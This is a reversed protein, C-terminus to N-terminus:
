NTQIILYNSVSWFSTPDIIRLITRDKGEKVLRYSSEPMPSLIKPKSSSIPLETLLRIDVQMFKDKPLNEYNVRKKKMFGGTLLGADKLEKKTGMKLFALNIADNQANMAEKRMEIEQTLKTNDETLNNVMDNLQGISVNKKELDARLTQILKDKSDLQQNLYDILRNLKSVDTGKQRLSDTLQAIRLRQNSLTQQFMELNKRLQKRDVITREKGKNTYFLSNEQIAISDLGDSLTEIFSSLDMFEKQHNSDVSELSDIKAQMEAVKNEYNGSCGILIGICLIPILIGFQKKRKM